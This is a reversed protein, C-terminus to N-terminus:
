LITSKKILLVGLKRRYTLRMREIEEARRSATEFAELPSRSDQDPSTLVRFVTYSIETGQHM